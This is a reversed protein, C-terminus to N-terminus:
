PWFDYPDPQDVPLGMSVLENLRVSKGRLQPWYTLSLEEAYDMMRERVCREATVIRREHTEYIEKEGPLNM